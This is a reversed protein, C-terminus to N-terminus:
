NYSVEKGLERLEKFVPFRLSLEGKENKSEEFYQVTIVRDILLDKMSWFEERQVDSFGSGVDVNNGKYDVVLAGLKGKYKGTGEKYDVVKVDCDNMTKVKLLNKTRKCEYCTNRNIMLGEKGEDEVKALLQPIVLHDTGFYLLPVPTVRETSTFLDNLLGRRTEYDAPEVGEVFGEYSLVDFVHFTVGTKNDSKSNVIKTTKRYLDGSNLGEENDALLEGDLVMKSYKWESLEGQIEKLGLIEKGQRTFFKVDGNNVIAVCRIGDLKETIFIKENPILKVDEFKKALQVEFKPVLGKWVKNITTASIGIKLDKLFIGRYIHAYDESAFKVYAAIEKKLDDNTNSSALKDLFRFLHLDIPLDIGDVEDVLKDLVKESIGYRKFPDYTYLLIQQLLENDKNQKLIELKEKSSNTGQLQEIINKITIM